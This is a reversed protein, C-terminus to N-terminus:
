YFGYIILLENVSEERIENDNWNTDQLQCVDLSLRWSMSTYTVRFAYGCCMMDEVNNIIERENCWCITSLCSPLTVCIAWLFAVDIFRIVILVSRSPVYFAKLTKYRYSMMSLTVKRYREIDMSSNHASLFLFESKGGISIMRFTRWIAWVFVTTFFTFHLDSCSFTSLWWFDYIFVM